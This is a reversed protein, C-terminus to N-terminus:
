RSAKLGFDYKLYRFPVDMSRGDPAQGPPLPVYEAVLSDKVGFVADSDLYPDEEAFVQTVLTEYGEAKLMFHVHAPRYPHRGTIELMKGVPGDTPIPYPAPTVTWFAYRGQADTIFRARLSASELEKQVDYFGESDSQWVDVIVNALPEGRADHVQGEVFFPEGEVNWDISEGQVAEPPDAVYFPGLVTSESVMPDSTQHNIADVLMTVGLTDSLLIFEQRQDDCMQGTRTLFNIAQTWEQETLEVERIFTHLHRVLRNLVSKLREDSCGAFQEIVADTINEANLNRM